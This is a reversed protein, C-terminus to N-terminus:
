KPNVSPGRNPANILRDCALVIKCSKADIDYFACKRVVTYAISLDGITCVKQSIPCIRENENAM